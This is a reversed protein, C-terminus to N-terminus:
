VVRETLKFLFSPHSSSINAKLQILRDLNYKRLLPIVSKFKDPFVGTSLSLNIIHTITPLLSPLCQKLLSTPLPDLDCFSNSSTLIIKSVEEETVPNFFSINTPTYKPTTHPSENKTASKLATHLKVIKEAFFTAFM